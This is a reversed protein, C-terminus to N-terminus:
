VAVKFFMKRQLCASNTRDSLVNLKEDLDLMQHHFWSEAGTLRLSGFLRLIKTKLINLQPELELLGRGDRGTKGGDGGGEMRM